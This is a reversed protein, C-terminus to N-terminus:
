GSPQPRAFGWATAALAAMVLGSGVVALAKLILAGHHYTQLVIALPFLTSGALLAFAVLQRLGESFSVREFIVGLVIMLMALGIWHSHADVQRVYDYKTEGYQELSARSQVVNRNASAAFSQALSGGMRDLTQHEVLLAYHLGYLMGFAALAMGGFILLQRSGTM